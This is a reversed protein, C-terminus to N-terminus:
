TYKWISIYTYPKSQIVKQGLVVARCTNSPEMYANLEALFEIADQQVNKIYRCALAPEAM